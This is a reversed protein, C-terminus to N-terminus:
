FNNLPLVGKILFENCVIVSLCIGKRGRGVGAV